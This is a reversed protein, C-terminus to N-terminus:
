RGARRRRHTHHKAVCRVKGHHRVRRKGKPCRPKPRHKLNGPGILSASAAAALGPATGGNLQCADGECIPGEGEEPFGGDERADYISPVGGDTDAGLLTATTYIFVDKGEPSAAYLHEPKASTPSSLLALCGAGRECGGTGKARWEYVDTLGDTDAPVLREDSEFFATSGDRTLNAAPSTLRLPAFAEDSQLRADSAAPAGTPNCSLCALGGTSADYRYVESHGESRFGSLPAHSQFLLVRGDATSRSPDAASGHHAAPGKPGLAGSTVWNGLNVEGELDAADLTAIFRPSSGDWLYLNPQGPTGKSGDLQKPSAFYVRSGDASINVLTSEGGSGIQATTKTATDFAFIDGGALYFLRSGDRSIGAFTAGAEDSVTLTEADGLRLYLDPRSKIKFAVASGDESAGQYSADEGAAPTVDGPLLSVCHVPGGPSRDYIAMTGTPSGCSALRPAKSGQTAGTHFILHGAGATIWSARAGPDNEFGAEACGVLEFDGEPEPSCAPDRVGGPVRVYSSNSKGGIDLSGGYTWVEWLSYGHDPSLSPAETVHAQTGSPAIDTSHWGVGEERMAEYADLLGNGGGPLLAGTRSGFVLSEGSPDALSADFETWVSLPVAQAPPTVLEYARCDPLHASPGSRLAENPCPRTIFPEPYTTFSADSGVEGPKGEGKTVCAKLEGPEAPEAAEEPGCHNVAVIRFRYTTGPALGEIPASVATPPATAPIQGCPVTSAPNPGSYAKGNEDFEAVTLYEVTCATAAGHPAIEGGLTASTTAAQTAAQTSVEPPALELPAFAYLHGALDKGESTVFLYGPHPSDYPATGPCPEEAATLCPTDIALDGNFVSAELSHSLEEVCGWEGVGPPKAKKCKWEGSKAYHNVRANNNVDTIYFDGSEQNVTISPEATTTDQSASPITELLAHSAGNYIKVAGEGSITTYVYHNRGWVDIDTASYGFSGNNGQATTTVACTGAGGTLGVGACGMQPVDDDGLKGTFTVLYPTAAGLGGPGGSVEVNGAGIPALAQLAAEVSGAGTAPADFAIPVTTAGEFSLTFTGGEADVAVQQAENAGGVLEGTPTYERIPGSAVFVHDDSPDIAVGKVAKGASSAFDEAVGYAKNEKAEAEGAHLPFVKPTYRVVKKERAVIYIHGQSDVALHCARELGDKPGVEIETVFRGEADFVDVRGNTSFEGAASAVYVYGHRDTAVGCPENFPRPGGEGPPSYPCGPDPVPDLSSTTCAGTLSLTADFVHLDAAQAGPASVLLALPSIAAWAALMLSRRVGRQMKEEAHDEGKAGTRGPVPRSHIVM